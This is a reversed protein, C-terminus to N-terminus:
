HMNVFLYKLHKFMKMDIGYGELLGSLFTDPDEPDYSESSFEFYGLNSLPADLVEDVNTVKNSFDIDLLTKERDVEDKKYEEGKLYTKYLFIILSAETLDEYDDSFKHIENLAEDLNDEFMQSFESLKNIAKGFDVLFSCSSSNSVFGKRIM